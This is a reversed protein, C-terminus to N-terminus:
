PSAHCRLLVELRGLASADGKLDLLAALDARVENWDILRGSCFRWDRTRCFQQIEQAAELLRNSGDV